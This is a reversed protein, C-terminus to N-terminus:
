SRRRCSAVSLALQWRAAAKSLLNGPRVGRVAALLREIRRRLDHDSGCAEDLFARREGGPAKSLAAAFISEDSM